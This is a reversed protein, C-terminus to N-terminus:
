FARKIRAKQQSTPTHSQPRIRFAAELGMGQAKSWASLKPTESQFAHFLLWSANV